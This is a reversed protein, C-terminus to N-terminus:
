LFMKDDKLTLFGEIFVLKGSKDFSGKGYESIPMEKGNKNLIIYELKYTQGDKLSKRIKERKEREKIDSSLDDLSIKGELFEDAEHETLDKIGTSLVVPTFNKDNKFKFICSPHQLLLKEIITDTIISKQTRKLEENVIKYENLLETIKQKQEVEATVDSYFSIVKKFNGASDTLPIYYVLLWKLEGTQTRRSVTREFYQGKYIETWLEEYEGKRIQEEPVYIKHEKGLLYNREYGLFECMKANIDVIIKNEDFVIMALSHNIADIFHTLEQSKADLEAQIETM